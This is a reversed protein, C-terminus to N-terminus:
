VAGCVISGQPYRMRLSQGVVKWMWAATSVGTELIAPVLAVGGGHTDESVCM